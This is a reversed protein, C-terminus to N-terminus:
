SPCRRSSGLWWSAGDGVKRFFVIVLCRQLPRQVAGTAAAAQGGDRLSAVRAKRFAGAGGDAQFRPGWAGLDPPVEADRRPTQKRTGEVSCGDPVYARSARLEAAKTAVRAAFGDRRRPGLARGGRPGRPRRRQAEHPGDVRRGGRGGRHRAPPRDGRRSRAQKKRRRGRAGAGGAGDLAARLLRVRPAGRAESQRAARPPSAAPSASRSARPPRRRGSRPVARLQSAWARM